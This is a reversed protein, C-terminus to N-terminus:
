EVLGREKLIAALEASVEAEQGPDIQLEHGAHVKQDKAKVKVMAPAKVKKPKEAPPADQTDDSM